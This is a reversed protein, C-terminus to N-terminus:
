NSTDFERGENEGGREPAPCEWRLIMFGLLVRRQLYDHSRKATTSQSLLM